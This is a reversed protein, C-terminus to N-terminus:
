VKDRRAHLDYWYQYTNNARKKYYAEYFSINDCVEKKTQWVGPTEDGFGGSCGDEFIWDGQSRITNLDKELRQHGGTLKIIVRSLFSFDRQRNLTRHYKVHGSMLPQTLPHLSQQDISKFGQFGLTDLTEVTEVSNSEVSLFAPLENEDLAELCLHDHGEIDIKLYHPVGFEALIEGFNRTQVVIEELAHGRRGASAKDFSNWVTKEPNVYFHAEGNEPAIGVNLLSLRGESIEKAFREQALAVLTPDAEVAVVRFGRSLYYATDDGNHMGVDYILQDNNM